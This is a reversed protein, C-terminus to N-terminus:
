RGKGTTRHAYRGKVTWDVRGEELRTRGGAWGGVRGDARGGAWGGALTRGDARGVAWGGAWGDWGGARTRGGARGGARGLATHTCNNILSILPKIGSYNIYFYPPSINNPKHGRFFILYVATSQQSWRRSLSVANLLPMIANIKHYLAVSVQSKLTHMFVKNTLKLLM